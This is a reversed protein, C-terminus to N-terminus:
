GLTRIRADGRRTLMLETLAWVLADARDPSRGPGEYGGGAILGCMEDELDPFAGRHAVRGAEYLAAVPEARAAKGRSAHVLKVPLGAEAARLVSEVMAGGNNAEAVVRDAGYAAAAGAVARAWGEPRMKEVSADALVYARGDAGLGAVVIGCADGHASAPPDVAVVVRTLGKEPVHRVRCRELLDRTWLAGEIEEILEGDLEQRGLRTGGYGEEMAALFGEALHAANDATRGRTVVTDGGERAALRRVLPVPRPTTTALVQPRRGLRMGLMLNDWVAEGGPWKGIEDAWGHSFQPGRLAEPDAAGFLTAIAGNPWILKRLAPAYAPRCWWPAISLLGSVGEVMVSRAEGLTAGVLAIRAGPDNEAIERVWEAGARTKGFGRGAMMLWVRWDGDPAVQGARATWRWEAALREAAADDLHALVRERVADDQGALWEMDSMRM